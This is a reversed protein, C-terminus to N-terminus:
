PAACHSDLYALVDVLGWVREIQRLPVGRLTINPARLWQRAVRDDGAVITDLSRFLRIFLLALEFAKTSKALKRSGSAMQSVSGESLGVIKGLQRNTIPLGSLPM